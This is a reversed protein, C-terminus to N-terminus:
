QNGVQFDYLYGVDGEKEVTTFPWWLKADKVTLMGSQETASAVTSGNKLVRVVITYYHAASIRLFIKRKELM